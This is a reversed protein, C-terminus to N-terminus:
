GVPGAVVGAAFLERRAAEPYGLEALIAATHEGLLPPVRRRGDYPTGFRLTQGVTFMRGLEPHEGSDLGGGRGFPTARLAAEDAIAAPAAHAVGAAALREAAEAVALEALRGQLPGSPGRDFPQARAAAYACPAELGLAEHLATWSRDADCAVALWGDRCRYLANTAAHGRQDPDVAFADRREGDV